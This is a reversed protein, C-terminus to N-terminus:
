SYVVKSEDLDWGITEAMEALEDWLNGADLGGLDENLLLQIGEIVSGLAKSTNSDPFRGAGYHNVTEHLADLLLSVPHRGMARDIMHRQEWNPRTTM